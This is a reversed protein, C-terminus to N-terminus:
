IVIVEEEGRLMQLGKKGKIMKEGWLTKIGCTYQTDTHTSHGKSLEYVM